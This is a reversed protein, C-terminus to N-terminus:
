SSARSVKVIFRADTPSSAGLPETETEEGYLDGCGVILGQASALLRRAFVYHGLIGDDIESFKYVPLVVRSSLLEVEPYIIDDVSRLLAEADLFQATVNGLRKTLQPLLHRGILRLPDDIRQDLVVRAVAVLAETDAEEYNGLATDTASVGSNGVLIDWTDEGYLGLVTEEVAHFIVGKLM